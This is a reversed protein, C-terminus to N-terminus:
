RKVHCTAAQPQMEKRLKEALKKDLECGAGCSLCKLICARECSIKIRELHSLVKSTLQDCDGRMDVLVITSCWDRDLDDALQKLEFNWLISKYLSREARPDLDKNLMVPISHQHGRRMNVVFAQSAVAWFSPLVGKPEWAASDGDCNHLGDLKEVVQGLATDPHVPEHDLLKAFAFLATKTTRSDESGDWFGSWLMHRSSSTADTLNLFWGHYAIETKGSFVSLMQGKCLKALTLLNRTALNGRTAYTICKSLLTTRLEQIKKRCKPTIAIMQRSLKEAPPIRPQYAGALSQVHPRAAHVSVLTLLISVLGKLASLAM